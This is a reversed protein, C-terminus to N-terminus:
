LPIRTSTKRRQGIFAALTVGLTKAFDRMGNKGRWAHHQRHPHPNLQSVTFIDLGFDGEDLQQALRQQIALAEKEELAAASAEM